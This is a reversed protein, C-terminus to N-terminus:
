GGGRVGRPGRADAGGEAGPPVRPRVVGDPGRGTGPACARGSDAPVVPLPRGAGHARERWASASGWWLSGAAGGPRDAGAGAGGREGGRGGRRRPGCVERAARVRASRD